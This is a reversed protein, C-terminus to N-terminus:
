PGDDGDVVSRRDLLTSAKRQVGGPWHRMLRETSIRLRRSAPERPDDVSSATRTCSQEPVHAEEGVGERHAQSSEIRAPSPSLHPWPTLMGYPYLYSPLVSLLLRFVLLGVLDGGSVAAGGLVQHAPSELVDIRSVITM